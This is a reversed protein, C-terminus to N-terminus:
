TLMNILEKTFKKKEEPMTPMAFKLKNVMKDKQETTLSDFMVEIVSSVEIAVAFTGEIYVDIFLDAYDTFVLGNQWCASVLVPFISSYKQNSIADTLVKVAGTDKNDYIYSSFVQQIESDTEELLLDFIVPMYVVGKKKRLKRIATNVDDIDKSRLGKIISQDLKIEAM